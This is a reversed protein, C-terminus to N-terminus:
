IRPQRHECMEGWRAVLKMNTTEPDVILDVDPQSAVRAVRSNARWDIQRM